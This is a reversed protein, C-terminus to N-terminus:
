HSSIICNTEKIKNNKTDILTHRNRTNHFPAPKSTSNIRASLQRIQQNLKAIQAESKNRYRFMKVYSRSSELSGANKSEKTLIQIQGFSSIIVPEEKLEEYEIEWDVKYLDFFLIENVFLVHKSTAMLLSPSDSCNIHGIYPDSKAYQEEKLRNLIIVGMAQQAISPRFRAEEIEAWSLISKNSNLHLTEEQTIDNVISLSIDHIDVLPDLSENNDDDNNHISIDDLWQQVCSDKDFNIDDIFPDGRHYQLDLSNSSSKHHNKDDGDEKPGESYFQRIREAERLSAQAVAQTVAQISIDKLLQNIYLMENIGFSGLSEKKHMSNYWDDKLSKLTPVLILYCNRISTSKCFVKQFDISAKDPLTLTSSVALLRKLLFDRELEPFVKDEDKPDNGNFTAMALIQIEDEKVDWVLCPRPTPSKQQSSSLSATSSSTSRLSKFSSSKLLSKPTIGFLIEVGRTFYYINGPLPKNSTANLAGFVKTTRDFEEDIDSICKDWASDMGTIPMSTNLNEILTKIEIMQEYVVNLFSLSRIQPAYQKHKLYMRIYSQITLLRQRLYLFILCPMIGSHHLQSLIHENDFVNPSMEMNSTICQIFHVDSVCKFRDANQERELIEHFLNELFDNKCKQILTILSYPLIDINKEIFQTTSYSVDGFFHKILFDHNDPVKRTTTVSRLIQLPTNNTLANALHQIGKDGIRNSKLDLIILATNTTLANALYQAGLAEIRNSGLELKTLTM